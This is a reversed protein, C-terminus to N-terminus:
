HITPDFTGEEWGINQELNSNKEIETKPIPFFYFEEPTYMEKSGDTQCEVIVYDFDEPGYVVDDAYPDLGEKLSCRLGYKHMGNVETHLRRTRRLEWFRRGEFAFEVYNEAYIAERIEEKTTATIGYNNDAGPEIGARDRIQKLVELAEDHHGTENAAEAFNMLVEAFRIEIWDLANTLVAGPEISNDTGKKCYFGTRYMANDVTFGDLFEGVVGDNYQVRDESVGCPLISGNYAISSYFRDDRNEWYTQLDYTYNPSEGPLFGDKLPFANIMKMIPQFYGSQSQSVSIPRQGRDRENTKGPYVYVVKFVAEKNQEVQFIDDYNELLGYGLNELTEKATKTATYADDWYSNNYPNSFNFQPSAMFLAVRGRFALVAAKDIRGYDDETYQEPLVSIAYDLDDLIFEFCELTSNRTVMLDDDLQQPAKIIPVGGHYMVAKFYHYARLFSAQGKIIDKKDSDLNGQDIEDFLVNIKRIYDYPWYQFNGNTTQVTGQKLIGNSEDSEPITGDWYDLPWGSVSSYLDNLYADALAEDNWIDDPNFAEYNKVNLFDNNCSSIFIFVVLITVFYARKM